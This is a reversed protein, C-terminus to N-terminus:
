IFPITFFFPSSRHDTTDTSKRWLVQGAARQSHSHLEVFDCIGCCIWVILTPFVFELMRVVCIRTVVLMSFNLLWLVGFRDSGNVKSVILIENVSPNRTEVSPPNSTCTDEIRKIHVSERSSREEEILKCMKCSTELYIYVIRIM